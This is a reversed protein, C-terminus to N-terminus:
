RSQVNNGEPRENGVFGMQMNATLGNASIERLLCDVQTQRSDMPPRLVIMDGRLGLASRPLGCRDTIGALVAERGGAAPAQAVNAAPATASGCAALSIGAGITVIVSIDTRKPM